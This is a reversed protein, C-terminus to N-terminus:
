LGTPCTESFVCHFNCFYLIPNTLSVAEPYLDEAQSSAQIQKRGSHQQTQTNQFFPRKFLAKFFVEIMFYEAFNPLASHM